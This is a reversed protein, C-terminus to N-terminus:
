ARIRGIPCAREGARRCSGGRGWVPPLALSTLTRGALRDLTSRGRPDYNPDLYRHLYTALAPAGGVAPAQRRLGSQVVDDQQPTTAHAGAKLWQVAVAYPSCHLAALAEALAVHAPYAVADRNKLRVLLGTGQALRTRGASLLRSLVSPPASHGTAPVALQRQLALLQPQVSVPQRCVQRVGYAAFPVTLVLLLGLCITRTLRRPRGKRIM